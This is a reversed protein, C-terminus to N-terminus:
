TATFRLTDDFSAKAFNGLTTTCGRVSTYCNHFSGMMLLKKPVPASVMAIGLGVHGSYNGFHFFFAQFRTWLGVQTQKHVPLIKLGEDKISSDLFFTLLRQNRLPCPFLYTQELSKIKLTWATCSPPLSKSRTKLKVEVLGMAEVVTLAEVMLM